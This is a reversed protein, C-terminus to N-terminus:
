AFSWESERSAPPLRVFTDEAGLIRGDQARLQLRRVPLGAKKDVLLVRAEDSEFFFDEGWQRLAVLLPFPGRRAAARDPLRSVILHRGSDDVRRPL